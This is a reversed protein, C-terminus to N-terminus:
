TYILRIYKYYIGHISLASIKYNDVLKFNHEKILLIYFHYVILICLILWLQITSTSTIIYPLDLDVLHSEM